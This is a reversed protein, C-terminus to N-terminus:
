FKAGLIFSYTILCIALSICLLLILVISCLIRYMIKELQTFEKLVCHFTGGAATVVLTQLSKCQSLNSRQERATLCM